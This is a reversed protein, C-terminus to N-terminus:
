ILKQTFILKGNEDTIGVDARAWNVAGYVDGDEPSFYRDITLGTESM